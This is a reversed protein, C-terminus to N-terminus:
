HFSETRYTKRETPMAMTNCEPEAYYSSPRRHYTFVDMEDVIKGLTATENRLREVDSALQEPIAQQQLDDILASLKDLPEKLEQQVSDALAVQYRDAKRLQEVMSQLQQKREQLAHAVRERETSDQLMIFRGVLLDHANQVGKQAPEEAYIPEIQVDYYRLEVETNHKLQTQYEKNSSYLYKVLNPWVSLATRVPEGVFNEIDQEQSMSNIIQQAQRNITLVKNQADLVIVGSAMNNIATEYVQELQVTENRSGRKWLSAIDAVALLWSSQMLQEKVM